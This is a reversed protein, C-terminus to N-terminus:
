WRGRPLHVDQLSDPPVQPGATFIISGDGWRQALLSLVNKALAPEFQAATVLCGPSLSIM